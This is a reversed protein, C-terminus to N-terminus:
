VGDNNAGRSAWFFSGIFDGTLVVSARRSGHKAAAEPHCLKQVIVSQFVLPLRRRTEHPNSM